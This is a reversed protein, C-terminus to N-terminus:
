QYDVTVTFTGTYSGATQSAGVDLNAGVNFSDTGGSLTPTGGADHTFTNISMATGPGTLSGDTFSVSYTSTGDGTVDFSAAQLTGGLETVNSVTRAGAASITVTGTSGSALISGFELSNNASIGIPAAITANGTGTADAAFSAPAGACAFVTTMGAAIILTKNM